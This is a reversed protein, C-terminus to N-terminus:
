VKIRLSQFYILKCHLIKGESISASKSTTFNLDSKIFEVEGWNQIIRLLLFFANPKLTILRQLGSTIPQITFNCQGLSALKQNMDLEFVCDGYFISIPLWFTGSELEIFLSKVSWNNNSFLRKTGDKTIHDIFDKEVFLKETPNSIFIIEDQKSYYM